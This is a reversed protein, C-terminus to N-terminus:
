GRTSAGALADREAVAKLADMDAEMAKRCAGKFAWGMLALMVKAGASEPTGNFTMEVRTGGGEPRFRYESRYHSGHSRAEAVYSRPPDFGTIEMTETAQRGMMVRTEKWRTGKGIPGETLVEVSRIAPVMETARRLDTFTRFVSEPPANIQRICTISPM